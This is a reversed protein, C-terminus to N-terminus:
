TAPFDAQALGASIARPHNRAWSSCVCRSRIGGTTTAARCHRTSRGYLSNRAIRQREEADWVKVNIELKQQRERRGCVVNTVPRTESRGKICFADVVRLAVPGVGRPLRSKLATPSTTVVFAASGAPYSTLWRLARGTRGTRRVRSAPCGGLAAVAGPCGLHADGQRDSAPRLSVSM